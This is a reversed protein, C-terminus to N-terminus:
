LRQWLDGQPHGPPRRRREKKVKALEKTVKDLKKQTAEKEQELRKSKHKWDEGTQAFAHQERELDAPNNTISKVARNVAGEVRKDRLYKGM